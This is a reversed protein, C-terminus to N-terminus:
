LTERIVNFKLEYTLTIPHHKFAAEVLHKVEEKSLTLETLTIAAHNKGITELSLTVIPRKSLPRNVVTFDIIYGIIPKQM